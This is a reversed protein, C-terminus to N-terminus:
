HDHSGLGQCMKGQKKTASTYTNLCHSARLRLSERKASLLQELLEAAQTRDQPGRQNLAEGLAAPSATLAHSPVFM